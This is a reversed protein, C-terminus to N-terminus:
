RGVPRTFQYYLSVSVRDDNPHNSIVAIDRYSQHLRRYDAEITFHENLQHSISVTGFLTHGGPTSPVSAPLATSLNLYAGNISATWTRQMQWTGVINFADSTYAGLLGQGATTSHSYSTSWGYRTARYALSALVFAGLSDNSPVGPESTNVYEPGATLALSFRTSPELTYFLSGIQVDTTTEIPSTTVHAYQYIAGLYQGKGIRRMFFGLGSGSNSNNLGDLDEVDPLHYLGYSGAGGIMADRSFQYGFTVSTSNLIQKAYPVIISTPPGVTSGSVAGNFTYPQSLLSSNQQFSDQVSLTSHRSTHYSFSLSANQNFQNFASDPMYFTTGVGYNIATSQRATTMRYGVTPVIAISADSVPEGSGGPLVNDDYAGTFMVGGSFYNSRAQSGFSMPTANGGVQPPLSMEFEDDPSIEGGGSASPQVQSWLPLAAFL